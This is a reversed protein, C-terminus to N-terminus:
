RLSTLGVFWAVFPQGYDVFNRRACDAVREIEPDTAASSRISTGAFRCKVEAAFFADM